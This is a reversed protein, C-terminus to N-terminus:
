QRNITEHSGFHNSGRHNLSEETTKKQLTNDSSVSQEPSSKHDTKTRRRDTRRGDAWGSKNTFVRSAVNRTRDKHFKTLLSTGIIGPDLKFNTLINTKIIHKNHEFTTVTRQFVNWSNRITAWDDHFEILVNTINFHGGTPQATKEIHIYHFCTFVRSTVNNKWNKHFKTLVNTQAKRTFVRSTVNIELDDHCPINT